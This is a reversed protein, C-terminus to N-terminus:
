FIKLLPINSYNKYPLCSKRLFTAVPRTVRAALQSEQQLDNGASEISIM